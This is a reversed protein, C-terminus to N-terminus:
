RVVVKYQVWREEGGKIESNFKWTIATVAPIAPPAAQGRSFAIETGSGTASGEVYAVGTPIANNIVAELAGATGINVAHITYTLTDGPLPRQRDETIYQVMGPMPKRAALFTVMHEAQNRSYKDYRVNTGSVTMSLVTTRVGAEMAVDGTAVSFAQPKGAKSAETQVLAQPRVFVAVSPRSSTEALPNMISYGSKLVTFEGEARGFFKVKITRATASELAFSLVVTKGAPLLPENVIEVTRILKASFEKTQIQFVNTVVTGNNKSEAPVNKWSANEKGFYEDLSVKKLIKGTSAEILELVTVAALSKANDRYFIGFRSQALKRPLTDMKGAILPVLDADPMGALTTPVTIRYDSFKIAIATRSQALVMSVTLVLGAFIISVTKM